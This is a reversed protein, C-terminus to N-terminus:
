NLRTSKRDQPQGPSHPQSDGVDGTAVHGLREVQDLPEIARKSRCAHLPQVGDVGALQEIEISLEFVLLATDLHEGFDCAQAAVLELRAPPEIVPQDEVYQGAVVIGVELVQAEQDAGLAHVKGRLDSSCVDSSWDSIRM